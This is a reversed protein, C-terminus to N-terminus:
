ALSLALSLFFGESWLIELGEVLPLGAKENPEGDLSPLPPFPPFPPRPPCPPPLDVASARAVPPDRLEFMWMLMPLNKSVMCTVIFSLVSVASRSRITSWHMFRARDIAVLVSRHACCVSEYELVQGQSGHSEGLNRRIPQKSLVVEM